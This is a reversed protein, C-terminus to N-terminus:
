DDASGGRNCYVPQVYIPRSTGSAKASFAKGWHYVCEDMSAEERRKVKFASSCRECTKVSGDESPRSGGEGTPIEVIYGWKRMEDLSMVYPELQEATLRLANLKKREEARKAIDGETGVSPHSASNPKPRQKM